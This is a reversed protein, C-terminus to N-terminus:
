EAANSVACVLSAWSSIASGHKLDYLMAALEVISHQSVDLGTTEVDLILVRRM